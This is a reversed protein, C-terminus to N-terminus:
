VRSPTPCPALAKPPPPSFSISQQDHTSYLEINCSEAPLTMCWFLHPNLKLQQLACDSAKEPSDPAKGPKSTAKEPKGTAKGPKGTAKGPHERRM